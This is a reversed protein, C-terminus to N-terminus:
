ERLIVRQRAQRLLNHLNQVLRARDDSSQIPGM